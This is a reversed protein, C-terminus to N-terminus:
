MPEHSRTSFRSLRATIVAAALASAAAPKRRRAVPRAPSSDVSSGIRSAAQDHAGSRVEAGIPADDDREAAALVAKGGQQVEEGDAHRCVRDLEVVMIDIAIPWAEHVPGAGGSVDARDRGVKPKLEVDRPAFAAERAFEVSGVCRRRRDPELRLVTDPGSAPITAGAGPADKRLRGGIEPDAPAARRQLDIYEGGRDAVLRAEEVAGREDNGALAGLFSAPSSQVAGSSVAKPV